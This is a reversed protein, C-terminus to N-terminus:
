ITILKPNKMCPYFSIPEVPQTDQIQMSDIVTDGSHVPIFKHSQPKESGLKMQSCGPRSTVAPMQSEGRGIDLTQMNDGFTTPSITAVAMDIQPKVVVPVQLEATGYKM